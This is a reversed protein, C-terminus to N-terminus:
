KGVSFTRVIRARNGMRDSVSVTITGRKLATLPEPLKLEWVNDGKLRFMGALNEGAEVGALAFDATVTFSDADLGSNYDHIGILLRSVSKNAGGSPETLTLTPRQDDALYGSNEATIRSPDFDPALDIPCGLDVWRVLTRRDEDSLPAVKIKKGDPGVYTGEVAARPPMESGIYDIDGEVLHNKLKPLPKDLWTTEDFDPDGPNLVVSPVDENTFGDLRRGYVKWILLSRRSQLKCIYRSANDTLLYQQWAHYQSRCLLPKPGYLARRDGALRYYTGPLKEILNDDDDFVLGAAAEGSKGSHCAVCSRELIPKVDRFYEVDHPGDSYRLGTQRNTDWKRGSEDRARSTVLPTHKTLDFLRYDPRAAATESFLTPEQSHAHCGGCNVRQEGPRLQHWTQAMNLVMGDKDITQFTFAVDAPIRALFSTDPNGDPDLPQEKPSKGGATAGKVASDVSVSALQSADFKRVPIEGLIRLREMAHSHYAPYGHSSGPANSHSNPEFALIRIAHIDSNTYRGADAGQGRWNWRSGSFTAPRGHERYDEPFVATVSGEPVVGLPASERKYMSSSGVLGFPTGEPLHPSSEGDNRHLLQKPQDVGYIRRYPVLPRPWQENYRPDNRILLMEGPEQTTKGEKILYLGSDIPQPGMYDRVAGSSGGIPGLTWAVLLHNDPAGCPHTLKGIRDSKEDGIISPAAPRDGTQIWPTIAEMGYPSFPLQFRTSFRGNHDRFKWQPNRPDDLSGSGFASYGAATTPPLKFLTGFGKQNQNYYLEIIINGDSLQSQFHFASPAATGSYASVVPNWNTGDPHISWIGWLLSARLGMNELSSFIIRGDKLIVPHLACGLNLHGVTEINSGDEDMIHLQMALTPYSKPPPLFANRNSVFVVKRGPVPCPHMNYVGYSPQTGERNTAFEQRTLRVVERSKAHVKYVDAGAQNHGRGAEHFHTYYVWEGDFSVYPDQIAGEGGAVLLEETGDPRLLMLDSGPTVAFPHGFEAWRAPRKKGHDEVWRPSRVYVIDYDYRVSGDGAIPQADIRIRDGPNEQGHAPRATVASLLLITTVISLRYAVDM